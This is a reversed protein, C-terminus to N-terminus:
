DFLGALDMFAFAALGIGLCRAERREGRSAAAPDPPPGDWGIGRLHYVFRRVKEDAKRLISFLNDPDVALLLGLYLLPGMLWLRNPM